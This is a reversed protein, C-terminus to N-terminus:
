REAGPPKAAGQTERETERLANFIQEATIPLARMRVGVADAIANALAPAVPDLAIQGIGKAGFPGIDAYGLDDCYILVFNPPRDAAELSLASALAIVLLIFTRM